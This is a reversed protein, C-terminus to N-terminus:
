ALLLLLLLTMVFSLGSAFIATSPPPKVPSDVAKNREMKAGLALIVRYSALSRRPPQTCM